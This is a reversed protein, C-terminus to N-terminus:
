RRPRAPEAITTALPLETTCKIETIAVHSHMERVGELQSLSNRLFQEFHKMDRAVIKLMYDMGGTITYCEVVEPFERVATEFADLSQRGHATLSVTVFVVLELGLQAADLLAVRRRILGHEELRNIRRWCPSQSLGVKDAIESASMSADAQLLRLIRLDTPDLTDQM